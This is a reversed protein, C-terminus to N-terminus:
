QKVDLLKRLDANMKKSLAEVQWLACRYGENYGRIFESFESRKTERM